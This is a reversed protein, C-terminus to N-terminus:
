PPCAAMACRANSNITDGNFWYLDWGFGNIWCCSPYSNTVTNPMTCFPQSVAPGLMAVAYNNGGWRSPLQTTGQWAYGPISVETIDPFFFSGALNCSQNFCAEGPGCFPVTARWTVGTSRIGHILQSQNQVDWTVQQWSGFQGSVWVAQKLQNSPTKTLETRFRLGDWYMRKTVPDRWFYVRKPSAQNFEKAWISVSIIDSGEDKIDVVRPAESGHHDRIGQQQTKLLQLLGEEREKESTGLKEYASPSFRAKLQKVDESLIATTVDSVAAQLEPRMEELTATSNAPEPVACSVCLLMCLMFRM